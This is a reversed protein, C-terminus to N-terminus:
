YNIRNIISVVALSWPTRPLWFVAWLKQTLSKIYKAPPACCTCITQKQCANRTGMHYWSGFWCKPEATQFVGSNYTVHSKHSRTVQTLPEVHRNLCHKRCGTSTGEPTRSQELVSLVGELQQGSSYARSNYTQTGQRVALLAIRLFTHRHTVYTVSIM